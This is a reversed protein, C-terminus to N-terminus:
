TIELNNYIYQAGSMNINDGSYFKSGAANVNSLTSLTTVTGVTTVTALTQAASIGVSGAEIFVAQQDNNTIRPMKELMASFLILLNDNLDKIEQSLVQVSTLTADTALEAVTDYIVMLTDGASHTSTDFDLTLVSGVVSSTGLLPKGIVYIPADRTINIVAYLRSLQFEAYGSFDLTKATPDFVPSFNLVQKM